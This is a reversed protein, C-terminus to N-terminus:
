NLFRKLLFLENEDLIGAAQIKSFVASRKKNLDSTIKTRILSIASTETGALRPDFWQPVTFVNPFKDVLDIALARAPAFPQYKKKRYSLSVDANIDDQALHSLIIKAVAERKELTDHQILSSLAKKLHVKAQRLSQEAGHGKELIPAELPITTNIEQAVLSTLNGCAAIQWSKNQAHWLENAQSYENSVPM